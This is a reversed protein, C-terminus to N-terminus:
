PAIVSLRRTHSPAASAQTPTPRTPSASATCCSTCVPPSNAARRSFIFKVGTQNPKITHDDTLRSYRGKEDLPTGLHCLEGGSAHNTVKIHITGAAKTTLPAPPCSRYIGAAGPCYFDRVTIQTPAPASPHAQAPAAGGVFVGTAIIILAASVSAIWRHLAKKYTTNM